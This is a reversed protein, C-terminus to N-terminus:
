AATAVIEGKYMEDTNVGVVGWQQLFDFLHHTGGQNDAPPFYKVLTPRMGVAYGGRVGYYSDWHTNDEAGGGSTTAATPAAIATSTYLDVGLLRGKYPQDSFITEAVLRDTVIEPLPYKEDILWQQMVIFQEPTMVAFMSPNDGVGTVAGKRVMARRFALLQKYPMAADAGTKAEFDDFNIGNSGVTGQSLLHAADYSLKTTRASDDDLYNLIDRDLHLTINIAERRQIRAVYDLPLELNDIMGLEANWQHYQDISFDIFEQAPQRRTGVVGTARDYANGADFDASYSPNPIHVLRNTQAESEWSTDGLMYFVANGRIDMTTQASFAEKMDDATSFAM